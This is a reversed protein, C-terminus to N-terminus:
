RQRRRVSAYVVLVGMAASTACRCRWGRSLGTMRSGNLCVSGCKLTAPSRARENGGKEHLDDALDMREDKGQRGGVKDPGERAREFVECVVVARTRDGSIVGFQGKGATSENVREARARAQQRDTESRIRGFCGVDQVDDEPSAFAERRVM